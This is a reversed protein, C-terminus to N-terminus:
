SDRDPGCYRIEDNEWPALLSRGLRRAAMVLLSSAAHPLPDHRRRQRRGGRHGRGRPRDPPDLLGRCRLVSRDDDDAMGTVGDHDTAGLGIAPRAPLVPRRAVLRARAGMALAVVNMAVGVAVAVVVVRAVVVAVAVVVMAMVSVQLTVAVVRAM